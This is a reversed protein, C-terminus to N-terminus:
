VLEELLMPCNLLLSGSNRLQLLFNRGQGRPHFILCRENLLHVVFHLQTSGCRLHGLVIWLDDSVIEAFGTPTPAADRRNIGVPSRDPNCVCVAIVSFTENHAHIFLQSRKQFEFRRNRGQLSQAQCAFAIKGFRHTTFPDSDPPPAKGALNKAEKPGAFGSVLEAPFLLFSWTFGNM